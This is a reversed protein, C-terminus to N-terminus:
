RILATLLSGGSISWTGAEAPSFVRVVGKGEGVLCDTVKATRASKKLTITDQNPQIEYFNAGNLSAFAELNDLASDTSFVDALIPMITPANFIGACGCDTEKANVPHPASDSGLFFKTNGSTAARRLALRNEERKAIPLCYMHPRLGGVFLDNRNIVLHHPTITAALNEKSTLVYDVAHSTTIHELVIKLNPFKRRLPELVLDIFVRERDFIDVGPDVVEGHILLPLGVAQMTELVSYADEIDAVGDDSNTTAGAPYYKVGVIEPHEAAARIDEVDTTETLYLTMLPRFPHGEPLAEIIRDRYSLADSVTRIPPKLNPMIIAKGFINATFPLVLKLMEGDRVHLHWDDPRVIQIIGQDSLRRM